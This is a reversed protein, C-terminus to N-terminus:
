WKQTTRGAKLLHRSGAHPQENYFDETGPAAEAWWVPRASAMSSAADVVAHSEQVAELTEAPTAQAADSGLM